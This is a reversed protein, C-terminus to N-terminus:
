REISPQSTEESYSINSPIKPVSMNSIHFNQAHAPTSIPDQRHRTSILCNLIIKIVEQSKTPYLGSRYSKFMDEQSSFGSLLEPVSIKSIYFNQTHAMM